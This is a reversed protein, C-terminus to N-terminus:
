EGSTTAYRARGPRRDMRTYASILRAFEIVGSPLMFLQPAVVAFEVLTAGREENTAQHGRLRAM